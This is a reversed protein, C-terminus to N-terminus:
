KGHFNFLFAIGAQLKDVRQFAPPLEGRSYELQAALNATLGCLLAIDLYRRPAANVTPFITTSLTGAPVNITQGSSTTLTGPPLHITQTTMFVEPDFLHRYTYSGTLTINTLYNKNVFFRLEGSAGMKFRGVSAGDLQHLDNHFTHGMEAGVFPKLRFRVLRSRYPQDVFLPTFELDAVLNKNHQTADAEYTPAARLIIQEIVPNLPRTITQMGFSASFTMTNENDQGKTYVKTSFSPDFFLSNNGKYFNDLWFERHVSASVGYVNEPQSGGAMGNRTFNLAAYVDAGGTPDAKTEKPAPAASATAVPIALEDPPTFSIKVSAGNRPTHDLYLALRAPDGNVGLM